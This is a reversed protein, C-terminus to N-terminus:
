GHFGIDLRARQKCGNDKYEVRRIRCGETLNDRRGDGMAYCTSEEGM